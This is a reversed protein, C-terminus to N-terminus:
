KRKEPANFADLAAQLPLLWDPWKHRVGNVTKLGDAARVVARMLRYDRRSIIICKREYPERSYQEIRRM